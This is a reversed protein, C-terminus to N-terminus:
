NFRCELYTYAIGWILQPIDGHPEYSSFITKPEDYTNNEIFEAKFIYYKENLKFYNNDITSNISDKVIINLIYKYKVGSISTDGKIIWTLYDDNDNDDNYTTTVSKNWFAM